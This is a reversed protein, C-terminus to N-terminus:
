AACAGRAGSGARARVRRLPVAPRRARLRPQLRAAPGNFLSRNPTDHLYVAHQNPFMFKIFGLANREGPPQRVSIGGNRHPDVQYGRSAAYAPDSYFENKLISPPVNWSPNVIAHEMTDSFLPTPTEPKGVIVRAEHIPRGDAVLRLRFEPVNVWIHRRGMDAPLWRWREM